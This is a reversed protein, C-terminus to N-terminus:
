LQAEYLKLSERFTTPIAYIGFGLVVALGLLLGWWTRNGNTAVSNWNPNFSAYVVEIPKGVPEEGDKPPKGIPIQDHGKVSHGRETRFEYTVYGVFEAPGRDKDIVDWDFETIRAQVENGAFFLPLDEVVNFILNLGATVTLGVAVATALAARKADSFNRPVFPRPSQYMGVVMLLQIVLLCNMAMTSQPSLLLIYGIVGLPRFWYCHKIAFGLAVMSFLDYRTLPPPLSTQYLFAITVALTALALAVRLWYGIVAPRDNM